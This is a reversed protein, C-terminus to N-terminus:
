PKRSFSERVTTVVMTVLLAYIADGEEVTGNAPDGFYARGAGAEKFTRKGAQMAKALDIPLPELTARVDDRVLHPKAALVLSTEYRGAHCAGRKYEETLTRAWRRETQDPFAVEVQTREFVRACAQKLSDVHAPELHSNVFCVRRFGQKVLSGAVDAFLGIATELSLSVTGGFEGAYDTVAYPITPAILAAYGEAELAAAARRALEDSLVADTALPLHPGHAETAGVPVLVIPDRAREAEAETWPLEALYKL